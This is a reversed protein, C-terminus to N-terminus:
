LQTSMTMADSIFISGNYVMGCKWTKFCLVLMIAVCVEAPAVGAGNLKILTSNKPLNVNGALYKNFNRHGGARYACFLDLVIFPNQHFKTHSIKIFFQEAM